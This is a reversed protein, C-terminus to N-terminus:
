YDVPAFSYTPHMQVRSGDWTFQVTGETVPADALDNAQCFQAADDPKVYSIKAEALIGPVISRKLSEIDLLIGQGPDKLTGCNYNPTPTQRDDQAKLVATKFATDKGNPVYNPQIMTLWISADSEGQGFYGILCLMKARGSSNLQVCDDLQWGPYWQALKWGGPTQDFLIGGGGNTAGSEFDGQYSLYAQTEPAGTLDGYIISSFLINFPGDAADGGDGPYGTLVPCEFQYAEQGPAKGGPCVLKAFVSREAPNLQRPDANQAPQARSASPILVLALLLTQFLYKM